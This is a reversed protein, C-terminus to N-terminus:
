RRQTVVGHLPQDGFHAAAAGGFTLTLNSEPLANGGTVQVDVPSGSFGAVNGNSTVTAAGSIQFGNALDTVEGNTVALHHTHAARAPNDARVMSLAASFRGKGGHGRLSVSWTGTVHWPGGEDLAATYDNITGDVKTPTESEAKGPTSLALTITVLSAVRWLISRNM